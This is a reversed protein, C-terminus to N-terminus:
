CGRPFMGLEAPLHRCGVAGLRWLSPHPRAGQGESQGGPNSRMGCPGGGGLLDPDPVRNRELETIGRM